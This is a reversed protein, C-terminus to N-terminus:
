KKVEINHQIINTNVNINRLAVTIYAFIGGVLYLWDHQILGYFFLAWSMIYVITDFYNM